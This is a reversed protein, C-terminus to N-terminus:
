WRLMASLLGVMALRAIEYRLFSSIASARPRSFVTRSSSRFM